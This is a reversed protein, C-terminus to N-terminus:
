THSISSPPAIVIFQAAPPPQPTPNHPRRTQINPINRPPDSPPTKPDPPIPTQRFVPILKRIRSFTRSDLIRDVLLVFIGSGVDSDTEIGCGVYWGM